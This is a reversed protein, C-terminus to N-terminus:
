ELLIEVSDDAYGLMLNCLLCLLGRISETEHDEDVALRRGKPKIGCIACAGCQSKLMREYRERSLGYKKRLHYFARQDRSKKLQEPDKGTRKRWRENNRKLRENRPITM